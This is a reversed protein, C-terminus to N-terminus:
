MAEQEVYEESEILDAMAEFYEFQAAEDLDLYELLEEYNM